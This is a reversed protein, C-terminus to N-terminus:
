RRDGQSEESPQPEPKEEPCERVPKEYKATKDSRLDDFFRVLQGFMPNEDKIGNRRLVRMFERKDNGDYIRKLSRLLANREPWTLKYKDPM